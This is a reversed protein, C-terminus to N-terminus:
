SIQRLLNQLNTQPVNVNEFQNINNRIRAAESELNLSPDLQNDQPLTQREVKAQMQWPNLLQLTTGDPINHVSHDQPASFSQPNIQPPPTTYSQSITIPIQSTHTPQSNITYILNPRVPQSVLPPIPQPSSIPQNGMPQPVM